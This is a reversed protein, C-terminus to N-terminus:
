GSPTPGTSTRAATPPRDRGGHRLADAINTPSSYEVDALLGHEDALTLLDQIGDETVSRQMVPSVLPGPYIEPVAGQQFVRGDGSVLLVPLNRFVYEVPVFGGEYAIRVVVDDAGTPHEIGAPAPTTTVPPQTVPPQTDAPPVTEVPLTGDTSGAGDDSSTDDGCAALTVLTIVLAASLLSRTSVPSMSSRRRVALSPERGVHHSADRSHEADLGHHLVVLPAIRREDGRQEPDLGVPTRPGLEPQAGMRVPRRSQGVPPQQALQRTLQRVQELDQGCGPWQRELRMWVSLLCTVAEPAAHIGIGVRFGLQQTRQGRELRQATYPRDVLGHRQQVLEVEVRQCSHEHGVTDPRDHLPQVAARDVGPRHDSGTGRAFARLGPPHAAQVRHVRTIRADGDRQQEIVHHELRALSQSEVGAVEM